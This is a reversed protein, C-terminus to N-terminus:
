LYRGSTETYTDCGDNNPLPMKSVNGSFIICALISSTHFRADTPRDMLGWIPGLYCLCLRERSFSSNNLASNQMRDTDYLLFYLQGTGSKEDSLAGWMLLDVVTQFYNFLSTSFNTAPGLHTGSM